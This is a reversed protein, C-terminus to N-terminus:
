ASYRRSTPYGSTGCSPTSQSARKTRRAATPTWMMAATCSILMVSKGLSSQSDYTSAMWHVLFGLVFVASLMVLYFLVSLPLASATTMTMTDEAVQWGARTVGYYWAIAPILALPASHFALVGAASPSLEALRAWGKKPNFTMALSRGLISM